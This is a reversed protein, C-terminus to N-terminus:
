KEIYQLAGSPCNDITSKVKSINAAQLQIWPRKDLNFVSPLGRVCNGSHTCIDTNFYVEIQDNDYKRYGKELLDNKNM